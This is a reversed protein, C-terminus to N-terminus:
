LLIVYFRALSPKDVGRKGAKVGQLVRCCRELAEFIVSNGDIDDRSGM